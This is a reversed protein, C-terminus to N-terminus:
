KKMKAGGAMAHEKKPAAKATTGMPRKADAPHKMDHHESFAAKVEHEKKSREMHSPAHGEKVLENVKRKFDQECPDCKMNKNEKM